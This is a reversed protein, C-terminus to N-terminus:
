GGPQLQKGLIGFPQPIAIDCDVGYFGSTPCRNKNRTRTVVGEVEKQTGDMLSLKMMRKEQYSMGPEPILRDDLEIQAIEEPKTFKVGFREIIKTM